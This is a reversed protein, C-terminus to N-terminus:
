IEAGVPVVVVFFSFGKDPVYTPKFGAPDFKSFKNGNKRIKKTM